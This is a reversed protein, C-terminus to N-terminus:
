IQKNRLLLARYHLSQWLKSIFNARSIEWKTSVPRMYHHLYGFLLLLRKELKLGFPYIPESEFFLVAINQALVILLIAFTCLM